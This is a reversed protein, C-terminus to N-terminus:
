KCVINSIQVQVVRECSVSECTQRTELNLWKARLAPIFINCSLRYAKATFWRYYQISNNYKNTTEQMKYKHVDLNKVKLMLISITLDGIIQIIKCVQMTEKIAHKPSHVKMSVYTHLFTFCALETM